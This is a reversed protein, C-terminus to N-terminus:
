IDTKFYTVSYASESARFNNASVLTGWLRFQSLSKVLAFVTNGSDCWDMYYDKDSREPSLTFCKQILPLAADFNRSEFLM